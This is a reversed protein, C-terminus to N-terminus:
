PNMLTVWYNVNNNIIRGGPIEAEMTEHATIHLLMLKYLRNQVLCSIIQDCLHSFTFNWFFFIRHSSLQLLFINTVFFSDFFTDNKTLFFHCTKPWFVFMMKKTLFLRIENKQLKLIERMCRLLDLRYNKRCRFVVIKECFNLFIESENEQCTHQAASNALM